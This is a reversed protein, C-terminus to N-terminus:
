GAATLPLPGTNQRQIWNKQILHWVHFELHEAPCGLLREMQVVGLGGRGPERRRASYLLSLIGDFIRRDSDFNDSASAGEFIKLVSARNSDYKVDYALDSSCVDSSWDS